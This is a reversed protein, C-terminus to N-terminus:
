ASMSWEVCSGPSENVLESKVANVLGVVTPWEKRAHKVLLASVRQKVEAQKLFEGIKELAGDLLDQHRGDRTLVILVQGATQAADWRQLAELVIDKVGQQLSRDDLWDLTQLGWKRAASVWGHVRVPDALWQSLRAAPDFVALKELLAKPDLFHDRVFAALNDAIHDKNAPIIATHPIPLGLPRRFLAVVAFWDALAGVAAAECFAKVWGWAGQGGMDTALILGLVAVALFGLAISQMRRLGRLRADSSSRSRHM